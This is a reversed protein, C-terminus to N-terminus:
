EEMNDLGLIPEDDSSTGSPSRLEKVALILQRFMEPDVMVPAPKEVRSKKTSKEREAGETPPMTTPQAM